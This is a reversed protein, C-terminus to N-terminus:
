CVGSDGFRAASGRICNRTSLEMQSAARERCRPPLAEILSYVDDDVLAEVAANVEAAGGTLAVEIGTLKTGTGTLFNSAELRQKGDAIINAVDTDFGPQDMWAELSAQIFGTGKSM